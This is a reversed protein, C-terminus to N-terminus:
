PYVFGLVVTREEGPPFNSKMVAEISPDNYSPDTSSIIEARTPRGVSNIFVRLTV